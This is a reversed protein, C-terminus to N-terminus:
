VTVSTATSTSTQRIGAESREIRGDGQGHRKPEAIWITVSAPQLTARVTRLLADIVPELSVGQELGSAFARVTTQADYQARNFRLDVLRRVRRRLPTFMASVLLVALATGIDSRIPLVRTLLLVAGAYTAVLLGIVIAYSVTRSFLRDIDYLHYRVVAFGIAVAVLNTDIPYMFAGWWPFSRDPVVIVALIVSVAAALAFLKMQQREIGQSRVMRVAADIVTVLITVAILAATLNAVQSIAAGAIPSALPNPHWNSNLDQL